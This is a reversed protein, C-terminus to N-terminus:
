ERKKILKAPVGGFITNSPIDKNIVSGAAIIAGDAIKVGPLIVSHSGIWVNNGIKIPNTKNPQLNMNIKLSTGHNSDVIYVFPSIMCDNGIKIERSAYIFTYNGITTNEGIFIKAESNCSCIQAESKVIVNKSLTINELFRLIKAGKLIYVNHKVNLGKLGYWFCKLKMLSRNPLSERLQNNTMSQKKM